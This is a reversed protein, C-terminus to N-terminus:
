SHLQRCLATTENTSVLRARCCAERAFHGEKEVTRFFQPDVEQKILAERRRKRGGVFKMNGVGTIEINLSVSDDAYVLLLHVGQSIYTYALSRPLPGGVLGTHM